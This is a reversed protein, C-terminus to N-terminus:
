KTVLERQTKKLKRYLSEIKARLTQQGIPKVIYDDAGITLAHLVDKREAEATVMVFHTGNYSLDQRVLQLLDIGSMGTMNWDCFVIKYPRKHRYSKKILELAQEGSEAQDTDTIGFTGLAQKIMVRMMEFDDVILVRSFVEAIEAQDILFNEDSM